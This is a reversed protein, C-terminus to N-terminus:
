VQCWRVSLFIYGGIIFDIPIDVRSLRRLLVVNQVLSSTWEYINEVEGM